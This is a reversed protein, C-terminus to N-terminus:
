AEMARVSGMASFANGCRGCETAAVSIPAGKLSFNAEFNLESSDIKVDEIALDEFHNPSAEM